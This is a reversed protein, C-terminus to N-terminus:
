PRAGETEALDAIMLPAPCQHGLAACPGCCWNGPDGEYSLMEAVCEHCALSRAVHEHVCAESIEFSAEGACAGLGLSAAADALGFAAWDVACAAPNTDTTM